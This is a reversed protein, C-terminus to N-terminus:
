HSIEQGISLLYRRATESPRRPDNARERLFEAVEYQEAPPGSLLDLAVSDLAAGAAAYDDALTIWQGLSDVAEEHTEARNFATKWLAVIQTRQHEDIAALRLLTPVTTAEDAGTGAAFSYADVGVALMQLFVRLAQEEAVITDDAAVWRVIEDLVQTTKGAECLSVLSRSAIWAHGPAEEVVYRLDRLAFSPWRRGIEFGYAATATWAQESSPDRRVWRHLLTRVQKALERDSAVVDLAVAASIRAIVEPSTAWDILLRDHLYVLDKRCLAGVAAAARGSVELNEHHGLTTLWELLTTRVAEHGWWLHDLVERQIGIDELELVESPCTGLTTPRHTIVIRGGVDEVLQRRYSSLVWDPPRLAQDEETPPELLRRLAQAADAVEHYSAGNLVSAAVMLCREPLGPHSEFWEEVRLGGLGAYAAEAEAEDVLGLIVRALVEALQDLYGPVPTRLLEERVWRAEILHPAFGQDKSHWRLNCRLVANPDPPDECRLFYDRLETRPIPTRSDVTVVLCGTGLQDSVSRLVPLRLSVAAEPTLTDSVYRGTPRVPDAFFGEPLRDFREAPGIAYVEKASPAEEDQEAQSLLWLAFSAKGWHARGQLVLVRQDRLIQMAQVAIDPPVFVAHIKELLKPEVPGVAVPSRGSSPVVIRNLTQVFGYSEGGHVTGQHQVGTAHEATVYPRGYQQVREPDPFVVKKEERGSRASDAETRHGEERKREERGSGDPDPTSSPADGRPKAREATSQAGRNEGPRAGLGPRPLDAAQEDAM